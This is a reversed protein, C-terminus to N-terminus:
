FNNVDKEITYSLIIAERGKLFIRKNIIYEKEPVIINGKINM